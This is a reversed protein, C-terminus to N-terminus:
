SRGRNQARLRRSPMPVYFNDGHMSWTVGVWDGVILEVRGRAGHYVNEPWWLSVAQGPRFPSPSPSAIM